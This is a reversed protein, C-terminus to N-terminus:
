CSGVSPFCVVKGRARLRERTDQRDTVIRGIRDTRDTRDTRDRSYRNRFADLRSDRGPRLGCQSGPPIQAM